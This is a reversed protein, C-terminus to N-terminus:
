PSDKESSQRFVIRHIDWLRQRQEDSLRKMWECERADHLDRRDPLGYAVGCDPCFQMTTM